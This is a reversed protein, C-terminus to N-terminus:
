FVGSPFVDFDNAPPFVSPFFVKFSGNSITM